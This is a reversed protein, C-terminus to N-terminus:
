DRPPLLSSIPLTADGLSVSRPELLQLMRGYSGERPNRQIILVRNTMDLVWYEPVGARAYLPGKMQLDFQVHADAVEVCMVLEDGRPHRQAYERKNERVVAIDPQPDYWQRDEPAVEIPMQNRLVELGFIGGLWFYLQHLFYAHTPSQGNKDVLYGAILEFRGELIGAKEMLNAEERTFRRHRPSNILDIHDPHVDSAPM